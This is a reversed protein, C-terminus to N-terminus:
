LYIKLSSCCIRVTEVLDLQLRDLQEELHFRDAEMLRRQTEFEPREQALVIMELKEELCQETLALNTISFHHLPISFIPASKQFAWNISLATSLFLRFCYHVGKSRASFTRISHINQLTASNSPTALEVNSVLLFAGHTVASDLVESLRDDNAACVWLRDLPYM